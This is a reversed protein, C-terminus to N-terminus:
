FRHYYGALVIFDPFAADGHAGRRLDPVSVQRDRQVAVPVALTVTNSGRTWSASPEVSLM